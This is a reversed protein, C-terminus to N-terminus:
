RNIRRYLFWNWGSVGSYPFIKELVYVQVNNLKYVPPPVVGTYQTHFLLWDSGEKLWQKHPVYVLNKGPPLYRSYFILVMTNRFDHDSAVTIWDEKATQHSTGGKIIIGHPKTIYKRKSNEAMYMVAGLYDGRGIKILGYIRTCNGYIFLALFVIAVTRSYLSHKFCASLGIGLVIFAFPFSVLIFRFYFLKSTLNGMVPPLFIALLFFVARLKDTKYLRIFGATLLFMFVLVAAALIMGKQPTGLMAALLTKFSLAIFIPSRAGAVGNKVTIFIYSRVLYLMAILPPTHCRLLEAATDYFRQSKSAEHLMSWIILAMYTLGFSLNSLLGLITSFWFLFLTTKDRSKWYDQLLFFSVLAFFLAPAYGRAESSYLVLPYSITAIGVAALGEVLGYESAAKWVLVPVLSGTIISPVRYWVWNKTDGMLYIFLTNLPHNNTVEIKTIIEWPHSAQMATFYSWIEDMWFCNMSSGIRLAVGALVLLAVTIGTKTNCSVAAPPIKVNKRM